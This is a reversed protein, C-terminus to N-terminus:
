INKYFVEGLSSTVNLLDIVINKALRDGTM